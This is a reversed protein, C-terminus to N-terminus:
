RRAAPPAPASRRAALPGARLLQGRLPDRAAAATATVRGLSDTATVRRGDLRGSLRIREGRGHLALVGAAAPGGSIRLRGSLKAPAAIRVAGSVRVGPVYVVRDLRLEISLRELAREFARQDDVDIAELRDLGRVRLQFRGRRLGGGRVSGGESEAGVLSQGLLDKFTLLAASVTRGRRGSAGRAPRVQGLSRPAVPEPPFLIPARRCRRRLPRDKFFARLARETCSSVDGGLVNHGVGPVVVLRGRPFRAAVKRAAELPTRLDQEGALALVPVDPVPGAPLAPATPSQPWGACLRVLDSALATSRDFPAFATAPLAAVAERLQRLREARAATRQWPFATEECSTAAYLATSLLSPPFPEGEVAEGRRALRLVPALDGRLASRVAGPLGARLSEDFDGALLITFLSVRGLRAPRRRGDPGVVYGRLAGGRLRAVLRALDAAPDPTIGRCGRRACASRLARPVAAFSDRYLADPGDVDVVSDLVLREVHSPYRAAYGLALKTGYSVGFLAIREVGIAKRVAEVDDVSDGTTYLARRPGIREACRAAERGANLLNARELPRCRLLGSRGTGRQDFVVLDRSRLAPALDEAFGETIPTAAQGPGGAFAFVAGRRRGSARVREVRLRVSGPVAGSRDLPVRVRACEISTSPGLEVRHSAAFVAGDGGAACPRFRTTAGAPAATVAAALTAVIAILSRRVRPM